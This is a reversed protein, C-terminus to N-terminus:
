QERGGTEVQWATLHGTSTMPLLTDMTDLTEPDWPELTLPDRPGFPKLPVLFGLTEPNELSLPGGWTLRVTELTQRKWFGFGEPDM